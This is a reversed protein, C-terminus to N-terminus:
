HNRARECSIAYSCPLFLYSVGKVDVLMEVLLFHPRRHRPSSFMTLTGNVPTFAVIAPNAAKGKLIALALVEVALAALLHLFLQLLGQHLLLLAHECRPGLLRHPLIEFVPQFIHMLRGDAQTVVGPVAPNELGVNKGFEAVYRHLFERGLVQLREVGFLRPLPNRGLGDLNDVGDQVPRQLVRDVGVEYRAIDAVDRRFRQRALLTILDLRQRLLLRLM